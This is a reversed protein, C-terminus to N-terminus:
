NKIKYPHYDNPIGHLNWHFKGGVAPGRSNTSSPLRGSLVRSLLWGQMCPRMRRQELSVGM